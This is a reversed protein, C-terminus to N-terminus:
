AQGGKRQRAAARRQQRSPLGRAANGQAVTADIARDRARNALRRQVIQLLQLAFLMWGAGAVLDIIRGTM